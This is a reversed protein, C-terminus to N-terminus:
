HDSARRLSALEGRGRPIAGAHLAACGSIDDATRARARARFAAFVDKTALAVVPNVLVASLKPLELPDSLDEGIGRVLRARAQLCVPVDAGPACATEALRPYDLGLANGRAM